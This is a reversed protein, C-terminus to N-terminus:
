PRRPWRLRVDHKEKTHLNPMALLKQVHRRFVGRLVTDTQLLRIGEEAAAVISYAETMMTNMENINEITWPRLEIGSDWFDDYTYDVATNSSASFLWACLWRLASYTTSREALADLSHMLAWGVTRVQAEDCPQAETVGFDSLIEALDPFFEYFESTLWDVGLMEVPIGWSLMELCDEDIQIPVVLHQNISNTLYTQLTHEDAGQWVLDVAHQYLEPFLEQCVRLAAELGDDGDDYCDENMQVLRRQAETPQLWAAVNALALRPQELMACGIVQQADLLVNM